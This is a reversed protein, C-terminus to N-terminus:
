TASGLPEAKRQPVENHVWGFRGHVAERYIDSNYINNFKDSSLKM